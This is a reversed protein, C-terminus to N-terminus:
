VRGMQEDPGVMLVAACRECRYELHAGDAAFTAGGLSWVHEICDQDDDSGM